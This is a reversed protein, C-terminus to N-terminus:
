IANADSLKLDGHIYYPLNPFTLGLSDKVSLWCSRDYGPADGQEYQHEEFEVRCFVLQYRIQSALGRMKWYGLTPKDSTPLLSM